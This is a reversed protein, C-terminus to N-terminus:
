RSLPIFRIPLDEPYGVVRRAKNKWVRQFYVPLDPDAMVILAGDLDVPQAQRMLRDIVSGPSAIDGSRLILNWLREAETKRERWAQFDADTTVTAATAAIAEPRPVPQRMYTLYLHLDHLDDAVLGRAHLDRAIEPLGARMADLTELGVDQLTPMFAELADHIAHLAQADSQEADPTTEAAPASQSAEADRAAELALSHLFERAQDYFREDAREGSELSAVIFGVRLKKGAPLNLNEAERYFHWALIDEPTIDEGTARKWAAPIRQATKGRIGAVRFADEVTFGNEEPSNGDGSFDDGFSLEKAVVVAEGAIEAILDGPKHTRDQQKNNDKQIDKQIDKQEEKYIVLRSFRPYTFASKDNVYVRKQQKPDGFLANVYVRKQQKAKALEALVFEKFQRRADVWTWDSQPQFVNYSFEVVLEALFVNLLYYTVRDATTWYILLGRPDANLISHELVKQLDDKRISIKTGIKKIAGDFERPSFGLLEVWSWGPSYLPHKAPPQKFMYFPRIEDDKENKLGHLYVAEQFLITANVSGLLPRLEKRYPIVKKDHYLIQLVTSM